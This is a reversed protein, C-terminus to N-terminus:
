TYVGGDCTVDWICFCGFILRLVDPRQFHPAETTYTFQEKPTECGLNSGCLTQDLKATNTLHTKEWSGCLMM